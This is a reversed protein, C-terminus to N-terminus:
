VSPLSMSHGRRNPALLSARMLHDARAWDAMLKLIITTLDSRSPRSLPASQLVSECRDLCFCLPSLDFHCFSAKKEGIRVHRQFYSGCTYCTTQTGRYPFSVIDIENMENYFHLWYRNAPRFSLVTQLQNCKQISSDAALRGRQIDVKVLQTKIFRGNESPTYAAAASSYM